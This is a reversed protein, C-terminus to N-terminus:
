CINVIDAIIKVFYSAKNVIIVININVITIKKNKLNNEAVSEQIIAQLLM